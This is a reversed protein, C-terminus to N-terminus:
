KRLLYGYALADAVALLAVGSWIISVGVSQSVDPNDVIRKGMLIMLVLIAAPIVSITFASILQGGRFCTGLAAGLAVLLFCGVGYAMRAHIEAIVGLVVRPMVDQRLRQIEQQLGVNETVETGRQALDRIDIQELRQRVQDPLPIYTYVREEPRQTEPIDPDDYDVEVGGTLRITVYSRSTYASQVMEIDAEDATVTESPQDDRIVELRVRESGEGPDARLRVMSDSVQRVRPAHVVFSAEDSSLGEFPEGAEIHRIVDRVLHDHGIRRRIDSLQRVVDPHASPTRLMQRLEQWNYFSPKERIIQPLPPSDLLLADMQYVGPRGTSIQTPRDLAVSVYTQGQMRNFDVKATRAVLTRVEDPRSMDIAAVGRLLDNEKDVQDAHLIMSEHKYYGETGIRHYLIGRANARVAVEGLRAMVPAVFNSLGLTALTVLLGMFLAPKMLSVPAIGSARCATLENDQAFRGYVITTAFLAAVPLTFSFMVPVMYVFLRLVQLGALGQKRLPEVIAFVCMVLTFAVLAIVAVRTLDRAIYAHLTRIL